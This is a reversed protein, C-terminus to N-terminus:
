CKTNIRIVTCKQDRNDNSVAIFKFNNNNSGCNDMLCDTSKENSKLKLKVDDKINSNNNKKNVLVKSAWRQYKATGDNDVYRNVTETDEVTHHALNDNGEDLNSNSSTTPITKTFTGNFFKDKQSKLENLQHHVRDTEERSLTRRLYVRAKNGASRITMTAAGEARVQVQGSTIDNTQQKQPDEKGECGDDKIEYDDTTVGDDDDATHALRKIQRQVPKIKKVKITTEKPNIPQMTAM